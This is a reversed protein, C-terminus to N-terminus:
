RIRNRQSGSPRFVVTLGAQLCAPGVRCGRVGRFGDIRGIQILAEHVKAPREPRNFDRDCPSIM